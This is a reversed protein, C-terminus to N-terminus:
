GKLKLGTFYGEVKLDARGIALVIKGFRCVTKVFFYDETKRGRAAAWNEVEALSEADLLKSLMPVSTELEPRTEEGLPKMLDFKRYLPIQTRLAEVRMQQRENMGDPLDVVVYFPRGSEKEAIRRYPAPYNEALDASITMFVGDVFVVSDPRVSYINWLGWSFASIQLLVIVTMDFIIKSRAKGPSFVILTLLPGIVIDIAIVLRIGQWGGDATFYPMPFLFLMFAATLGLAAAVSASFHVLFAKLRM